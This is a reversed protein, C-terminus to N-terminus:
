VVSKRDLNKSFSKSKELSVFLSEGSQVEKVVTGLAKSTKKDNNQKELIQFASVLNIGSSIMISLQRCLIYMQKLGIKITIFGIKLM